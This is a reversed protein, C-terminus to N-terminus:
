MERSFYFTIAMAILPPFWEPVVIGSPIIPNLIIMAVGGAVLTLALAARIRKKFMDNSEDAM